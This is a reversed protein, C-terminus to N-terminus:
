RTKLNVNWLRKKHARLSSLLCRKALYRYIKSKDLSPISYHLNTLMTECEHKITSSHPQDMCFQMSIRLKPWTVNLMLVNHALTRMTGYAHGCSEPCKQFWVNQGGCEHLPRRRLGSRLATEFSYPKWTQTRSSPRGIRTLFYATESIDPNTYGTYLRGWRGWSFDPSSVDAFRRRYDHERWDGSHQPCGRIPQLTLAMVCIIEPTNIPSHVESYIGRPFDWGKHVNM